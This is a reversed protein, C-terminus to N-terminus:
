YKKEFWGLIELEKKLSAFGEYKMWKGKISNDKRKSFSIARSRPIKKVPITFFRNKENDLLYVIIFDCQRFQDETLKGVSPYDSDGNVSRVKIRVFKGKVSIVFDYNDEEPCQYATIGEKKLYIPLLAHGATEILRSKAKM